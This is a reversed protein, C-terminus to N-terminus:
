SNRYGYVRITGGTVNGSACTLTFDTYATSVKHSGVITVGASDAWTKMSINTWKALNPSNFEIEAKIGDTNYAGAGGWSTTNNDSEATPSSSGYTVYLRSAYYGTTSAGLKLTFQAVTSGVGGSILVKYNEYTSSFADTVTISSVATGITQTKVLVLAPATVDAWQAVGATGASLYQGATGGTTNIASAGVTTWSTTGGTSAVLVHGATASGAPSNGIGLKTELAEIADNADAHQLSHSPTNLSDVATPNTFNDLSTPYNAM